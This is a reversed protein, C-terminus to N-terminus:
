FLHFCDSHTHSCSCSYFFWLLHSFKQDPFFHSFSLPQGPFTAELVQLCSPPPSFYPESGLSSSLFGVSLDELCLTMTQFCLFDEIVSGSVFPPQLSWLAEVSPPGLTLKLPLALKPNARPTPSFERAHCPDWPLAGLSFLRALGTFLTTTQPHTLPAM